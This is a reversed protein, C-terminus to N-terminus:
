VLGCRLWILHEFDSTFFSKFAVLNLFFFFFKCLSFCLFSSLQNRTPFLCTLLCNFLMNLINLIFFSVVHISVMRLGSAKCFYAVHLYPGVTLLKGVVPLSQRNRWTAMCQKKILISLMINTQSFFWLRFLFQIVHLYKLTVAMIVEKSIKLYVCYWPIIQKSNTNEEAFSVTQVRRNWM